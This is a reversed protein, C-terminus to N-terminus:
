VGGYIPLDKPQNSKLFANMLDTRVTSTSPYLFDASKYSILGPLEVFFTFIDLSITRGFARHKKYEEFEFLRSM